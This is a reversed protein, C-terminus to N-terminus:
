THRARHGFKEKKYPCWDHQMLAWGLLRMKVQVDALVKNGVFTVNM